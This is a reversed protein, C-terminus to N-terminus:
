RIAEEIATRIVIDLGFNLGAEIGKQIQRVYNEDTTVVNILKDDLGMERAVAEVDLISVTYLVQAQKFSALEMKEFTELTQQLTSKGENM